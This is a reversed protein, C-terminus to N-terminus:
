WIQGQDYFVNNEAEMHDEVNTNDMNVWARSVYVLFTYVSTERSGCIQARDPPGM